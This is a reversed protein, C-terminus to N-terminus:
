TSNPDVTVTARRPQPQVQVPLGDEGTVVGVAPGADSAQEVEVELHFVFGVVEETFAEMMTNFM